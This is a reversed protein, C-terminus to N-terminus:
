RVWNVGIWAVMQREHWPAKIHLLHLSVYFWLVTSIINGVEIRFSRCLTEEVVDLLNM